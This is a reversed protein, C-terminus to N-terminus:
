QEFGIQWDVKETNEFFIDVRLINHETQRVTYGQNFEYIKSDRPHWWYGDPLFVFVSHSSGESAVSTVSLTKLDKDYHEAKLEVAGQKIHRSTGIIQPFGTKERLSFLATSGPNVTVKFTDTIIGAFRQNWFDFALWTKNEDLQFKQLSVSRKVQYEKDPNFFAVVNWTGFNRKITCTFITQPDNETLDV